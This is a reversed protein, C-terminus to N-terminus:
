QVQITIPQSSVGGVTGVVTTTGVGKATILAHIVTPSSQMAVTAVATNSIVWDTISEIEMKAGDSYTGIARLCVSKDGAKLVIPSALADYSGTLLDVRQAQITISQLTPGKFVTQSGNTTCGGMVVTFGSLLLISLIFGAVKM